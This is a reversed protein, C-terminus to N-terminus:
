YVLVQQNVLKYIDLNLGTAELNDILYEDWGLEGTMDQYVIVTMAWVGQKNILEFEVKDLSGKMAIKGVIM